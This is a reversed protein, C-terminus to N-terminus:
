SERFVPESDHKCFFGDDHGPGTLADASGTHLLEERAAGAHNRQRPARSVHRREFTLM